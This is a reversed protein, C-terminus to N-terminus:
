REDKQALVGVVGGGVGGGGGGEDNNRQWAVAISLDTGLSILGPDVWGRKTLQGLCFLLASM